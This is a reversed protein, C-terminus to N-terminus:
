KEDRIELNEREIFGALEKETPLVTKYKSAFLKKNEKSVSYKVTDLRMILRLHTWGLNAVCHTTLKTFEPFRQYFQRINKLNAVSFGRGFYDSLYRSLNIILYNGYDARTKGNQEEEVIRKGMQWYTKIMITNISRYAVKRGANLLDRIDSFFQQVVKPTKKSSM